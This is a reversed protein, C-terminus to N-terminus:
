WICLKRDGDKIKKITKKKEGAKKLVNKHMNFTLNKNEERTVDIEFEQQM